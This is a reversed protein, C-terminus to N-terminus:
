KTREFIPKREFYFFYKNM